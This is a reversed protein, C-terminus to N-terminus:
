HWTKISGTGQYITASHTANLKVEILHNGPTLGRVSSVWACTTTTSSPFPSGAMTQTGWPQNQTDRVGDISVEIGVNALSATDSQIEISFAIEALGNSGVQVTNSLITTPVGPALGKNSTQTAIQTSQVDTTQGASTAAGGVPVGISM